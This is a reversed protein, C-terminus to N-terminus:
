CGGVIVEDRERLTDVEVVADGRIRRREELTGIDLFTWEDDGFLPEGGDGHLGGLRGVVRDELVLQPLM